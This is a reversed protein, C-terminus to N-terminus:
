SRASVVSPANTTTIPAVAITIAATKATRPVLKAPCNVSASPTAWASSVCPCHYPAANAMTSSSADMM